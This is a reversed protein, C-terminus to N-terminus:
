SNLVFVCRMLFVLGVVWFCVWFEVVGIMLGGGWFFFMHEWM